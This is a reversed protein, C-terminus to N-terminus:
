RNLFHAPLLHKDILSLEPLPTYSHKLLLFYLFNIRFGIYQSKPHIQYSRNSDTAPYHLTIEFKASSPYRYFLHVFPLQEFKHLFRSFFTHFRLNAFLHKNKHKQHSTEGPNQIRSPLNQKDTCIAYLQM